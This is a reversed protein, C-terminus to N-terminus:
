CMPFLQPKLIPLTLYYAEMFRGKSVMKMIFKQGWLYYIIVGHFLVAFAIGVMLPTNKKKRRPPDLIPDRHHHQEAM